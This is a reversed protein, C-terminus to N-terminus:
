PRRSVSIAVRRRVFRLGVLALGLLALAPVWPNEALFRGIWRLWGGIGGADTVTFTVRAAAGAGVQAGGGTPVIQPGVLAAYEGPEADPPVELLTRVPASAGGDLSLSTPTFTFWAEPPRQALQGDVYSVVVRYATPDDGPNRVGFAPLHYAGGPALQESIAISGVDISVGTSAAIPAVLAGAGLGLAAIALAWAPSRGAM